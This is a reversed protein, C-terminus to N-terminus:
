LKSYIKRGMYEILPVSRSLRKGLLFPMSNMNEWWLKVYGFIKGQTSYYTCKECAKTFIEIFQPLQADIVFLDYAKNRALQGMKRIEDKHEVMWAMNEFYKEDNDAECWRAYAPDLIDFHDNHFHSKHTLIPCGALMAEAIALGLTEGDKRAHAFVDIKQYFNGLEEQPVRDVYEMNKINLEATLKKWAPPPNAVLYKVKEGYKDELKKFAKVAIPDFIDDDGRGLRGFVIQEGVPQKIRDEAKFDELPHWDLVARDGIKKQVRALNDKGSVYVKQVGGNSAYHGFPSVLVMPLSAPLKNMPFQYHAFVPTYVCHINYKNIIEMLSPRMNVLNHPEHKQRSDYSFPVLTVQSGTFYNKNYEPNKTGYAFFVNFYQSLHKALLQCLKETSGYFMGNENFILLNYKVLSAKLLYFLNGAVFGGM